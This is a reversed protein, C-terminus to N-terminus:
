FLRVKEVVFNNQSFTFFIKIAFTDGARGGHLCKCSNDRIVTRVNIFTMYNYNVEVIIYVTSESYGHFTKCPSRAPSVKAM